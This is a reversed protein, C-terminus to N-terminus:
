VMVKEHGVLGNMFMQKKCYKPSNETNNHTRMIKAKHFQVDKYEQSNIYEQSNSHPHWLHYCTEQLRKFNKQTYRAIAIWAFCDDEGGWSKFGEDYGGLEVYTARSMYWIGGYCRTGSRLRNKQIDVNILDIFSEDKIFGRAEADSMDVISSFPYVLKSNKLSDEILDSQIYEKPIIIDADIGM